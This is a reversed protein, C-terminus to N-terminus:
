AAFTRNNNQLCRALRTFLAHIDAALCEVQSARDIPMQKGNASVQSLQPEVADENDPGLHIDVLRGVLCPHITNAGHLHFAGGVELAAFEFSRHRQFNVPVLRHQEVTNVSLKVTANLGLLVASSQCALTQLHM